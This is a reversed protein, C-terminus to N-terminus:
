NLYFRVKIETSRVQPYVQKQTNTKSQVPLCLQIM